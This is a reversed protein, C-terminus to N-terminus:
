KPIVVINNGDIFMNLRVEWHSGLDASIVGAVSMSAGAGITMSAGGPNGLTIGNNGGSIQVHIQDGIKM